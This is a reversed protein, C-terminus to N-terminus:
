RCFECPSALQTWPGGALGLTRFLCATPEWDLSALRTGSIKM